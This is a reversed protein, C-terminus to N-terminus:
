WPYDEKFEWGDIMLLATCAHRYDTYIDDDNKKLKKCSYRYGNTEYGTLAMERTLNKVWGSPMLRKTYNDTDFYFVNKGLSKDEKKFVTKRTPKLDVLILLKSKGTYVMSIATGNNTVYQVGNSSVPAAGCTNKNGTSGGEGCIKLSKYYPKIYKNVFFKTGDITFYLNEDVSWNEFDGNEAESLRIAQTLESYVKKVRVSTQKKEHNAVLPPLTMAAVVGIIGITILVEALTFAFNRSLGLSYNFPM